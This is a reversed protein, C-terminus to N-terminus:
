KGDIEKGDKNENCIQTYINPKIVEEKFEYEVKQPLSKSYIKRIDNLYINLLVLLLTEYKIDGNYQKKISEIVLREGASLNSLKAKLVKLLTINDRIEVRDKTNKYYDYKFLENRQQLIADHENTLLNKVEGDIIKKDPTFGDKAKNKLRLVLMQENEFEKKVKYEYITFDGVARHILPLFRYDFGVSICCCM